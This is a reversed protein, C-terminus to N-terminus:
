GHLVQPLSVPRPFQVQLQAAGIEGVAQVDLHGARGHELVLVHDGVLDLAHGLCEEIEVLSELIEKLSKWSLNASYM